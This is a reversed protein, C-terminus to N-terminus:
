AFAFDRRTNRGFAVLFCWCVRTFGCIFASGFDLVHERSQLIPATNCCVIVSISVGDEGCGVDCANDYESGILSFPAQGGDGRVRRDLQDVM